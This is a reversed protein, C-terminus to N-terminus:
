IIFDINSLRSNILTIFRVPPVKPMKCEEYFLDPVGLKAEILHLARIITTFTLKSLIEDKM